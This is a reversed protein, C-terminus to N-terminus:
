LVGGAWAIAYPTAYAICGAGVFLAALAARTM